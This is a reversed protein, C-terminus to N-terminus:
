IHLSSTDNVISFLLKTDISSSWRWSSSETWHSSARCYCSGTKRQVVPHGPHSLHGVGAGAQEAIVVSKRERELMLLQWAGARAEWQKGVLCSINIAEREGLYLLLIFLKRRNITTSDSDSNLCLKLGSLHSHSKDTGLCAFLLITVCTSKRFVESQIKMRFCTILRFFQINWQDWFLHM